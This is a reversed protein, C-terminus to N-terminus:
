VNFGEARLCRKHAEIWKTCASEGHEVICEDRLRKTDPCACCIKKKPKSDTAPAPAASGGESVTPCAPSQAPIPHETSGM